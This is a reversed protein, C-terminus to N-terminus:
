YQACHVAAKEAVGQYTRAQAGLIFNQFQFMALKAQLVALEKELQLKEQILAQRPQYQKRSASLLIFGRRSIAVLEKGKDLPVTELVELVRMPDASRLKGDWNTSLGTETAWVMALTAFVLDEWGLVDCVVYTADVSKKFLPM